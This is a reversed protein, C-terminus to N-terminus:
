GLSQRKTFAKVRSVKRLGDAIVMVHIQPSSYSMVDTLTVPVNHTLRFSPASADVNKLKIQPLSIRVSSGSELMFSPTLALNQLKWLSTWTDFHNPDNRDKREKYRTQLNLSFTALIDLLTEIM